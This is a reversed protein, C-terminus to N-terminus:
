EGEMVTQARVSGKSLQFNEAPLVARYPEFSSLSEACINANQSTLSSYFSVKTAVRQVSPSHFDVKLSVLSFSNILNEKSSGKLVSKSSFVM